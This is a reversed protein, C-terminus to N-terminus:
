VNVCLTRYSALATTWQINSTFATSGFIEIRPLRLVFVLRPADLSETLPDEDQKTEMLFKYDFFTRLRLAVDVKSHEQEIRNRWQKGQPRSTM